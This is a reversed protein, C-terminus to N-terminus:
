RRVGSGTAPPTPRAADKPGGEPQYGGRLRRPTLLAVLGTCLVFGLVFSGMDFGCDNM